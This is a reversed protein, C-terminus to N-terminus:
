PEGMEFLRQEIADYANVPRVSTSDSSLAVVDRYLSDVDAQEYILFESTTRLSTRIDALSMYGVDLVDITRPLESESESRCIVIVPVGTARALDAFLAMQSRPVRGEPDVEDFVFALSDSSAKCCKGIELIVESSSMTHAQNVSRPVSGLPVPPDVKRWARALLEKVLTSRDEVVPGVRVVRIGLNDIFASALDTITLLGSDVSGRIVLVSGGPRTCTARVGAQVDFRDVTKWAEIDM